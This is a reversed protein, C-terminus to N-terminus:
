VLFMLIQQLNGKLMRILNGKLLNLYKQLKMMNKKLLVFQQHQVIFHNIIILTYLDKVMM